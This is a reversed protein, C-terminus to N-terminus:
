RKEAYFTARDLAHSGLEKGLVVHIVAKTIQESNFGETCVFDSKNELLGFRELFNLAVGELLEGGQASFRYHQGEEFIGGASTKAEARGGRTEPGVGHIELRFSGAQFLAFGQQVGGVIEVGHLGVAEHHAV